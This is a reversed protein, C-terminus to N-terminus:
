CGDKSFDTLLSRLERIARLPNRGIATEDSLVFGSYGRCVLDYLHCIEARTASANETLHELVQGAMLVPCPEHSPQYSGIFRAMSAPGLQAGLDGRCIWLVDVCAALKGINLVAERREVKGIVICGPARQRIWSAEHGDTMFSFAFAVPGLHATAAISKRDSETLDNLSIPHELVNIGKRPHLVGDTRSVADIAQGGRSVVLFQLRDDDCSLTDGVAIADFIEKHPLPIEEGSAVYSFRLPEGEKVERAAFVGLRMKAGQLDIVLPVDPLAARIESALGSLRKLSLHSSNVRLSTAGADRICPILGESSPGITAVIELPFKPIM